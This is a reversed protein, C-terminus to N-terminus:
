LKTDIISAALKVIRIFNIIALNLQFEITRSTLNRVFKLLNTMWIRRTLMLSISRSAIALSLVTWLGEAHLYWSWYYVAISSVSVRLHVIAATQERHARYLTDSGTHSAYILWIPIGRCWRPYHLCADTVYRAIRGKSLQSIASLERLSSDALIVFRLKYIHWMWDLKIFSLNAHYACM